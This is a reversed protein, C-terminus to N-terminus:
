KGGDSLKAALLAIRKGLERAIKLDNERPPRDSMPGAVSTPGYPSGGATTEVLEKVSYPVGAVIMGHHFLTLM